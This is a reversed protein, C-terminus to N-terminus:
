DGPAPRVIALPCDAHHLLAQSVSGLLLGAFGGRGRAGVVVLQADRSQALLVARPQGPVLRRTVRLDPHREALGATVEALLRGADDAVMETDHVLPLMDGPGISVPGTYAHVAVLEAGRLAAEEAAFAVALVSNASGDVGVVVPGAGRPTGRAILIPCRSHTAVQVAVSGILLGGFGGLGRNGLVLLAADRAQAVLVAPAAGTVVAGSVEVRSDITTAYEVAEKVLREAEARLGADPPAGPPPELPVRLLPWVFAHVVRLPRDREVAARVALRVAALSTESGDVGVLVPAKAGSTM